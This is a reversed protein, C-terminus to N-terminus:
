KNLDELAEELTEFYIFIEELRSINLMKMVNDQVGVLIVPIGHDSLQRYALLLAGLGSSDVYEVDSLNVILAEINPQCIILLEAKFQPSIVTDLNTNKLTFIVINDRREITFNM